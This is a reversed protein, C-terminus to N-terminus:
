SHRRYHLAATNRRCFTRSRTRQTTMRETIPNGWEQDSGATRVRAHGRRDAIAACASAAARLIAARARIAEDIAGTQCGARLVVAAPGTLPHDVSGADDRADAGLSTATKAALALHNFARAARRAIRDAAVDVPYGVDARLSTTFRKM